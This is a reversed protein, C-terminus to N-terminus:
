CTAGIPTRDHALLSDMRDPDIFDPKNMGMGQREDKGRRFRRVIFRRLMRSVQEVPM